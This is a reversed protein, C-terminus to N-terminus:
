DERRAALEARTAEDCPPLYGALDEAVELYHLARATQGAAASTRASNLVSAVTDELWPSPATADEEGPPDLDILESAKINYGARASLYPSLYRGAIKAPPWWLVNKSASGIKGPAQSRLYRPGWKTLIAGRLMPRFAQPEVDAGAVAAIASAASDAAQTALGGQNIPFTTVDGAAYVDDLGLVQCVSGVQILGRDDQPLGDIQPAEPIPLSVVAECKAPPGSAIELEGAEFRIPASGLRTKVGADRLLGAVVDSAAGGFIAMPVVEPSVLILKDDSDGLRDATLLALEYLGLPWGVGAPVAFALRDIEGRELREVVDRFAGRDAVDWYALAGPVTVGGRAGVAVLLSDYPIDQGDATFVIKKDADVSALATSVMEAGHEEVIEALHAGRPVTLSFPEAVALPRYRFINDPAVVIVSVRDDALAKLALLAELAAVGGGAIVVRHAGDPAKPPTSAM